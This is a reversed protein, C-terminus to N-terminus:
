FSIIAKTPMTFSDKPYIKRKKCCCLFGGEDTEREGKKDKELIEDIEKNIEKEENFDLNRLAEGRKMLM